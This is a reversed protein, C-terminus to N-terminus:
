TAVTALDIGADLAAQETKEVFARRRRILERCVDEQDRLCKRARVVDDLLQARQQADASLRELNALAVAGGTSSKSM